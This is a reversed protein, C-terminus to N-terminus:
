RPRFELVLLRAKKVAIKIAALVDQENPNGNLPVFPLELEIAGARLSGEQTFVMEIEGQITFVQEDDIVLHGRGQEKDAVLFALHSSDRSFCLSRISHYTRGPPKGAELISQGHENKVVSVLRRSDPSFAQQDIASGETAAQGDVYLIAKGNM